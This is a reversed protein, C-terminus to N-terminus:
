NISTLGSRARCLNNWLLLSDGCLVTAPSQAITRLRDLAEDPLAEMQLGMPLANLINQMEALENGEAQLHVMEETTVETRRNSQNAM